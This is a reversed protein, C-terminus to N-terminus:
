CGGGAVAQGAQCQWRRGGECAREGEFLVGGGPLVCRNATLAYRLAQRVSAVEDRVQQSSDRATLSGIDNASFRDLDRQLQAMDGLSQQLLDQLVGSATDQIFRVGPAAGSQGVTSNHVTEYYAAFGADFHDNRRPMMGTILQAAASSAMASAGGAAREVLNTRAEARVSASGSFVAQFLDRATGLDERVKQALDIARGADQIVSGIVSGSRSDTDPAAPRTGGGAPERALGSSLSSLMAQNQRQQAQLRELQRRQNEMQQASVAQANERQRRQMDDYQRQAEAHQRASEEAARQQERRSREAAARQERERELYASVERNCADVRSKRMQGLDGNYGFRDNMQHYRECAACSCKGGSEQRNNGKCAASNLCDQHMQSYQNVLEQWERSMADCEARSTPNLPAGPIPVQTRLQAWAQDAGSACLALLLLLRPLRSRFWRHM